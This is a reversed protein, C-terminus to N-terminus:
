WFISKKSDRSICINDMPTDIRATIAVSAKKVLLFFDLPRYSQNKEKHKEINKQIRCSFIFMKHKSNYMEYNTQIRFIELIKLKHLLVWILWLTALNVNSSGVVVEINSRGVPFCMLQLYENNM